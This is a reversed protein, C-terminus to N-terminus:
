RMKYESFYSGDRFSKAFYNEAKQSKRHGAYGVVPLKMDEDNEKTLFVRQYGPSLGSFKDSTSVKSELIRPRVQMEKVHNFASGSMDKKFRQPSVTLHEGTNKM